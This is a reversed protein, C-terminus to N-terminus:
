DIEFALWSRRDCAPCRAFLPERRWPAVLVLPLAAKVASRLDLASTADCRSCRVAVGTPEDGRHGASFLAERGEGPDDEGPGAMEDADGRRLLRERPPRIRDFEDSM